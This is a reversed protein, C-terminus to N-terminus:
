KKKFCKVKQLQCEYKVLVVLYNKLGISKFRKNGDYLNENNYWLFLNSKPFSVKWPNILIPKLNWVWVRFGIKKSNENIINVNVSENYNLKSHKQIFVSNRQIIIFQSISFLSNFKWMKCTPIALTSATHSRSVRIWQM